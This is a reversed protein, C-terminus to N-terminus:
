ALSMADLYKRTAQAQLLRAIPAGLRALLEHPRSFVSIRFWVGDDRREVIFLEEGSEPHLPLTGYAFGYQVEDDVVAVIRCTAIAFGVPLPAALAVTTGETINGDAWISIGSRIHPRWRSLEDRAEVFREAGGIRREFQRFRFGPPAAGVLTQREGPYTM